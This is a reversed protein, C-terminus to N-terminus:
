SARMPHIQRQINSHTGARYVEGRSQAVKLCGPDLLRLVLFAAVWPIMFGGFVCCGM